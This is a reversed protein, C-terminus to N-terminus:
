RVPFNRECKFPSKVIKIQDCQRCFPYSLEQESYLATCIKGPNLRNNPDFLFKIYRLEQWLEPTFFKEGYQSRMGKWIRGLNFGGYKKTLDAVQDSITKFLLVQEKNCLDLAPVHLVGDVHGFMGYDLHHKDLLQRFESIYNALNEPPVCSDEM